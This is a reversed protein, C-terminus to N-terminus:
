VLKFTQGACTVDREPWLDVMEYCLSEADSQSISNLKTSDSIGSSGSGGGDGCAFTSISLASVILASLHKM